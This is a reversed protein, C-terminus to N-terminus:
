QHLSIAISAQLTPRFARVGIGMGVKIPTFPQYYGLVSPTIAFNEGNTVGTRVNMDLGAKDWRSLPYNFYVGAFEKEYFRPMNEPSGLFAASQQYFGGVEVQSSFSYGIATGLKNGVSTKEVYTRSVLGQSQAAYSSIIIAAILTLKKM